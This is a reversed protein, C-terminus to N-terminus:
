FVEIVLSDELVDAGHVQGAPLNWSDGPGADLAREGIRFRLKGSVLYGTQEQPHRHDPVASGQDLRFECLM